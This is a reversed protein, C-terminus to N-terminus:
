AYNIQQPAKTTLRREDHFCPEPMQDQAPVTASRFMLHHRRDSPFLEPVSPLSCCIMQDTAPRKLLVFEQLRTIFGFM